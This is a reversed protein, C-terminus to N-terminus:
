RDHGADGRSTLGGRLLTGAGRRTHEYQEEPDDLAATAPVPERARRHFRPRRRLPSATPAESRGGSSSGSGDGPARAGRRDPASLEESTEGSDPIWLEAGGQRVLVLEEADTGYGYRERDAAEPGRDPRRAPAPRLAGVLFHLELGLAILFPLWIPVASRLAYPGSIGALV